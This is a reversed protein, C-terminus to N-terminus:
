MIDNIVEVEEDYKSKRKNDILALTYKKKDLIIRERHQIHALKWLMEFHLKFAVDKPNTALLEADAYVNDNEPDILAIYVKKSRNM